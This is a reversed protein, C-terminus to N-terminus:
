RCGPLRGRVRSGVAGRKQFIWARRLRDLANVMMAADLSSLGVLVIDIEIDRESLTVTSM